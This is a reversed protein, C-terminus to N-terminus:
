ITTNMRIVLWDFMNNYLQKAFADKNDMARKVSIASWSTERTTKTRSHLLTKAFTQWDKMGLLTCIHKVLDENKIKGPKGSEVDNFSMKDFEIQGILLVAAVCSWIAFQEPETFVLQNMTTIVEAFGKVDHDKPLDGWLAKDCDQKLYNYDYPSM